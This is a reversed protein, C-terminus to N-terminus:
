CWWGASACQQRVVHLPHKSSDSRPSPTQETAAQVYEWCLKGQQRQEHTVVSGEHKAIEGDSKPHVAPLVVHKQKPQQVPSAFHLWQGTNEELHKWDPPSETRIICSDDVNTQNKDARASAAISAANTAAALKILDQVLCCAEAATNDEQELDGKDKTMRTM